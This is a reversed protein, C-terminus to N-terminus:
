FGMLGMTVIRMDQSWFGMGVFLHVYLLHDQVLSDLTQRVNPQVDMMISITGMMVLIGLHQSYLGMLVTSLVNLLQQILDEQVITGLGLGQQVDLMVDLWDLQCPGIMM